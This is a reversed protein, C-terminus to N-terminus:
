PTSPVAAADCLILLPGTAPGPLVLISPGFPGDGVRSVAIGMGAARARAAPLGGAVAVYSGANGEGNRALWAALRGETAPEAVALPWGSPGDPVIVVRAGLLDDTAATAASAGIGALARELDVTAWLTALVASGAGAIARVREDTVTGADGVVPEDRGSM